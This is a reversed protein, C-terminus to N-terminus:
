DSNYISYQGFVVLLSSLPNDSLRFPHIEKYKPMPCHLYHSLSPLFISLFLSLSLSLLIIEEGCREYTAARLM